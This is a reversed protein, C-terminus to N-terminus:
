RSVSSCGPIIERLGYATCPSEQTRSKTHLLFVGGARLIGSVAKTRNFAFLINGNVSVGGVAAVMMQPKALSTVKHSVEVNGAATIKGTEVGSLDANEDELKEPSMGIYTYM